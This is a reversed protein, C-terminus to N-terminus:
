VVTIAMHGPDINERAVRVVEDATVELIRDRYTDMYDRPLKNLEVESIREGVSGNSQLDVALGGALYGKADRLERETPPVDRINRMERMFEAGAPATVDTAVAAAAVFPGRGSRMSFHSNVGYTYGHEERLNFFLRSGFTEGLIANLTIL